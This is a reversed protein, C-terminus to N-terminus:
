LQDFIKSICVLCSSHGGFSVKVQGAVIIEISSVDAPTAHSTFGPKTDTEGVTALHCASCYKVISLRFIKGSVALAGM